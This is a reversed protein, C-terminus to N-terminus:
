KSALAKFRGGSDGLMTPQPTGHKPPIASKLHLGWISGRYATLGTILYPEYYFRFGM